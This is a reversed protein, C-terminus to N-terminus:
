TLRCMSILSVGFEATEFQAFLNGKDWFPNLKKYPRQRGAKSTILSMESEFDKEDMTFFFYNALADLSANESRRLHSVDRGTKVVFEVRPVTTITTTECDYKKVV